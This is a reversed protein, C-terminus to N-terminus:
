SWFTYIALDSMEYLIMDLESEFWYSDITIIMLANTSMNVDYYVNM